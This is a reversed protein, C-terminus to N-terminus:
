SVVVSTDTGCQRCRGNEIGSVSVSYGRRRVLLSGCSPCVTNTEEGGLNGLYVYNLHKRAV